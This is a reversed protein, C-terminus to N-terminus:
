KSADFPLHFAFHADNLQDLKNQKNWSAQHLSSLWFSERLCDLRHQSKGDLCWQDPNRQNFEILQAADNQLSLFSDLSKMFVILLISDICFYVFYHISFLMCINTKIQLFIFSIQARSGFMENAAFCTSELARCRGLFKPVWMDLLILNGSQRM